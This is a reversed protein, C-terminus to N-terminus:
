YTVMMAWCWVVTAALEVAPPAFERGLKAQAYIQRITLGLTRRKSERRVAVVVMGVTMLFIALKSASLARLTPIAILAASVLITIYFFVVTWTDERSPRQMNM